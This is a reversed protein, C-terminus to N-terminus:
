KRYEYAYVKRKYLKDKNNFYLKEIKLGDSYISKETRDVRGKIDLFVEEVLKGEDDYVYKEWLKVDGKRSMEKIELLYGQENFREISELVPKDIGEEEFYEHVTRTIIGKEEITKKSQAALPGTVLLCMVAMTFILRTRKGMYAFKYNKLSLRV